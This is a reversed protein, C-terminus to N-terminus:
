AAECERVYKDYHRDAAVRAEVKVTEPTALVANKGRQTVEGRLMIAKTKFPDTRLRIFGRRILSQHHRDRWHLPLLRTAGGPYLMILSLTWYQAATLRDAM